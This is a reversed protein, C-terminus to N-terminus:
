FTYRSGRFSTTAQFVQGRPDYYFLGGRIPHGKEQTWFSGEQGIFASQDNVPNQSDLTGETRLSTEHSADNGAPGIHVKIPARRLM